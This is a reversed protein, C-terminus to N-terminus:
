IICRMRWIKQKLFVAFYEKLPLLLKGIHFEPPPPTSLDDKSWNKEPKGYLFLISRLKGARPSWNQGFVFNTKFFKKNGFDGFSMRNAHFENRLDFDNDAFHKLNIKASQIFNLIEPVSM